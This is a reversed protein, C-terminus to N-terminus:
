QKEMWAQFMLIDWLDYQWNRDGSLHEQWKKQIIETQFYGQKKMSNEDLLDEAWDRLDGRLWNDIPIGFGMKPRDILKKPVYRDLVQRLVWKSQNHSIKLSLPLRWAFEVVRHDLLPVRGELSVGMTARDLKTLIDDPLYTILDMYMMRHPFDNLDAFSAPTTINTLKECGNIVVSEAEWWHSCLRQYMQEPTEASLVRAFKHLKDGMRSFQSNTSAFYDVKKFLRDLWVPPINLLGKAITARLSPHLWGFKKFIYPVWLHRNYGGFLEDGGDGSLSVTVHQRALKSVLYTPIQSSDSFPEDYITPLEPIVNIAEQPSIYLETHDTGLHSAVEKAYNAENYGQIEFGISFTKVPRDSQSQMLAVVTSSDIGGSLFAGLPVDSVMRKKVSDRLLVDLEEVAEDDTGQFLNKQGLEAYERSSWYCFEQQGGGGMQIDQFSIKLLHGPRLKWTDKYITFPAPICNHKLYLTLSNRDIEPSFEPHVKISKLESGWIIGNELLAYYLPKIGLRDRCLFLFREQRDWLAFAFMGNFREIAKNVGWVEIAALIVETDSHGRWSINEVELERRIEEFNYIEGNYVIVYRDSYSKMPQHGDESLDIISLRRHAMGISVVNDFWTGSDDPGRLVMKEAMKNLISEPEFLISKLFYGAIGCM